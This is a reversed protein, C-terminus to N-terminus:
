YRLQAGTRTQLGNKTKRLLNDLTKDFSNDLSKVIITSRITPRFNNDIAKVIITSRITPRFNNDITKFNQPYEQRVFQRYSLLYLFLCVNLCVHM